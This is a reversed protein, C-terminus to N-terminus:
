RWRPIGRLRNGQAVRTTEWEFRACCHQVRHCEWRAARPEGCSWRRGSRRHDGHCDTDNRHRSTKHLAKRPWTPIGGPQMAAGSKLPFCVRTALLFNDRCTATISFVLFGCTWNSNFSICAAARAIPSCSGWGFKVLIRPLFCKRCHAPRGSSRENNERVRNEALSSLDHVKSCPASQRRHIEELLKRLSSLAQM